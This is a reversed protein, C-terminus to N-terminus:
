FYSPPLIMAIYKFEPIIANLNLFVHCFLLSAMMFVPIMALFLTRSRIIENLVLCYLSVFLIYLGMHAWEGPTGSYRGTLILCAMGAAGTLFTPIVIETLSVLGTQIVTFRCFAGSDRDGRLILAGCMGALFILVGTLGEVMPSIYDFVDMEIRGGSEKKGSYAVSFTSGNTLNNLYFKRLDEALMERDEGEFYGSDYTDYLLLAYTYEQMVYSFVLENTIKPVISDPTSVARVSDKIQREKVKKWFDKEFVYGAYIESTRVDNELETEDTYEIFQVLGKHDTMRKIINRAIETDDGEESNEALTDSEGTMIGININVGFNVAVHRIFFTSGAMCLIIVYLSPKKLQRKLLMFLWTGARKM